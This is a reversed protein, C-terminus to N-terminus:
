TFDRMQWFAAIQFVLIVSYTAATRWSWASDVVFHMGQIIILSLVTLGILVGMM